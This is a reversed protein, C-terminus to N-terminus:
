RDMNDCTQSRLKRRYIGLDNHDGPHIPDCGINGINYFNGYCHTNCPHNKADDDDSPDHPLVVAM